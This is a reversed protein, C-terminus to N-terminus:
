NTVTVTLTPSVYSAQGGLKTAANAMATGYSAASTTTIALRVSIGDNTYQWANFGSPITPMFVGDTGSWLSVASGPCTLSSVAVGSGGPYAVHFGTGNNGTPYAIMCGGLKGIILQAQSVLMSTTNNTSIASGNLSNRALTLTLGGLILTAMIVAAVLAFGAQRRAGPLSRIQHNQNIRM